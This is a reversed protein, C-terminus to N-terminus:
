TGPIWGRMIPLTLRQIQDYLNNRIRYAIREAVYNAQSNAFYSFTGEVIALAVFSLAVISIPLTRQGQTLWSHEIFWALLLYVSTKSVTSVLQSFIAFLFRVRFGTMM